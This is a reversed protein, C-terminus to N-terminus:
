RSYSTPTLLGQLPIGICEQPTPPSFLISRYRHTADYKYTHMDAHELTPPYVAPTEPPSLSDYNRARPRRSAHLGAFKGSFHSFSLHACMCMHMHMYM